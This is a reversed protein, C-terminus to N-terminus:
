RNLRSVTIGGEHDFFVKAFEVRHAGLRRLTLEAFQPSVDSPGLGAVETWRPDLGARALAGEMDFDRPTEKAGGVYVVTGVKM